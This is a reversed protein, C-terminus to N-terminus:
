EVLKIDDNAIVITPHSKGSYDILDFIIGGAEENYEIWLDKYREDLLVLSQWEFELVDNNKLTIKWFQGEGTPEFGNKLKLGLEEIKNKFFTTADSM